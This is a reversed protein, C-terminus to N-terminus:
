KATNVDRPTLTTGGYVDMGRVPRTYPLGKAKAEAEERDVARESSLGVGLATNGEHCSYEYLKYGPQQTITYRLTFPAVWTEPDEVTMRYDIM